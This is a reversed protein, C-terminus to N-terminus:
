EFVVLSELWDTILKPCNKKFWWLGVRKAAPKSMTAIIRLLKNMPRFGVKQNILNISGVDYLRDLVLKVTAEEREFLNELILCVDEMRKKKFEEQELKELELRQQGSVKVTNISDQPSKTMGTTMM